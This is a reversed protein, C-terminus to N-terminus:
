NLYYWNKSITQTNYEGKLVGMSKCVKEARKTAGYCFTSGAVPENDTVQAHDYYFVIRPYNASDSGKKYGVVHKKDRDFSVKDIIKQPREIDLIDISTTYEGNALYYVEEANKIARGMEVIEMFQAKDVAVQYQPLAVAALIGIILVVVLLEILTFACSNKM